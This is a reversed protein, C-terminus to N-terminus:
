LWFSSDPVSAPRRAAPSPRKGRLRAEPEERREAPRRAAPARSTERSKAPGEVESLARALREREGRERSLEETAARHWSRLRAREEAQDEAMVAVTRHHSARLGEREKAHGRETEAVTQRHAAEQRRRVQEMEAFIRQHNMLMNTQYTLTAFLGCAFVNMQQRNKEMESMAETHKKEAASLRQELKERREREERVLKWAAAQLREREETHGKEMEAITEQHSRTIHRVTDSYNREVASLKESVRSLDERTKEQVHRMESAHAESAARAAARTEKPRWEFGIENLRAVREGSLVDRSTRQKRVWNGLPPHDPHKHPVRCNGHRRQYAVLERFRREWLAEKPCGWIFGISALRAQRAESLKGERNAARQVIM